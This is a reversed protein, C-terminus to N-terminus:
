TKVSSIKEWLRYIDYKTRAGMIKDRYEEARLLQMIHLMPKLSSSDDKDSNLSALVIQVPKGDFSNFDVAEKTRCLILAYPRSMEICFAEPLAISDGIATTGKREKELFSKYLTEEDKVLGETKAFRAIGLFIDEKTKGELDLIILDTFDKLPKILGPVAEEKVKGGEGTEKDPEMEKNPERNTASCMWIVILAIAASVFLTTFTYSEFLGSYIWRPMNYINYLDALEQAFGGETFCYGSSDKFILNSKELFEFIVWLVICGIIYLFFIAVIFYGIRQTFSKTRIKGQPGMGDFGEM